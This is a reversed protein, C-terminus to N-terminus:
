KRNVKRLENLINEKLDHLKGATDMGSQNTIIWIGLNSDPFINLWNQMGFAGGHHAVSKGFDDEENMIWFYGVTNDSEGYIAEQNYLTTFTNTADTNKEDLLYKMYNLIDAPTSKGAGSGGWLKSEMHLTKEGDMGHGNARRTLQDEDLHIGTDPIQIKDGIKEAILEDFSRNYVKEIIYATLETGISSYNFRTGPMIDLEVEGLDAFFQEKSYNSEVEHVRYPLQANIDTFLDDLGPIRAPLSTTHTLLHRILIPQGNFQLNRYDGDLYERIDDDLNLKGDLVAQSIITGLLTKTVSAIEYITHDTPRNNEGKDLEGFHEIYDQGNYTVAISLSHIMPDKLLSNAHKAIAVKPITDGFKIQESDDLNCSIILLYTFFCLVIKLTKM